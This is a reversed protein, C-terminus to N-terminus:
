ALRLVRLITDFSMSMQLLTCITVLLSLEIGFKTRLTNIRYLDAVMRHAFSPALTRVLADRNEQSVQLAEVLETVIGVATKVQSAADRAALYQAARTDISALAEANGACHQNWFPLLVDKLLPDLHAREEPTLTSADLASTMAAAAAACIERRRAPATGSADHGELSALLAIVESVFENLSVGYDRALQSASIGRRKGPM